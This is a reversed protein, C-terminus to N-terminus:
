IAILNFTWKIPKYPSSTVAATVTGGSLVTTNMVGQNSLLYEYWNTWGSSISWRIYHHGDGSIVATCEQARNISGTPYTYLSFASNSSFPLNTSGSSGTAYYYSIEVGSNKLTNADVNSVLSSKLKEPVVYCLDGNPLKIQNITYNAM